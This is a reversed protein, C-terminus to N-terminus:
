GRIRRVAAAVAAAVVVFPLMRGVDSLMARTYASSQLVPGRYPGQEEGGGGASELGDGPSRREPDRQQEFMTAEMLRDTTRPALKGMWATLRTGGGVTVERVPREVCRLITDAVVEVDYVPPAYYPADEMRMRAHDVFPTNTSGPKVLTVLIPVGDHELEMRLGDTYGQVAHKSAAYISLLPMARDSVVSGINIIAGGRDRLHQVATRCGHVVGWFNTEFLRRKDDLPVDLLKGYIGVGANNIWTDFGGFERTAMEAVRDMADPDAVDATVYTAQGGADRIDSTIRRLAEEDRSTLVLRAGKRAAKRATALGIGSSAGTIVLRQNALKKPLFKRRKARAM